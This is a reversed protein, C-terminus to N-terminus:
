LSSESKNQLISELLKGQIVIQILPGYNSRSTHSHYTAVMTYCSPCPEHLPQCKSSAATSIGRVSGKCTLTLLHKHRCICGCYEVRSPQMNDDTTAQSAANSPEIGKSNVSCSSLSGEIAVAIIVPAWIIDSKLDM